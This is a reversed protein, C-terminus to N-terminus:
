AEATYVTVQIATKYLSPDVLDGVITSLLVEVAAEDTGVNFIKTAGSRSIRANPLMKLYQLIGSCAKQPTQYELPDAVNEEGFWLKLKGGISYPTKKDIAGAWTSVVFNSINTGM